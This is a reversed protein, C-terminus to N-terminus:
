LLEKIKGIDGGLMLIFQKILVNTLAKTEFNPFNTENADGGVRYYSMLIVDRKIGDISAILTLFIDEISAMPKFYGNAVYVALYTIARGMLYVEDNVISMKQSFEAYLDPQDAFLVTLEFLIKEIDRPERLVMRILKAAVMEPLLDSEFLDDVNKRFDDYQSEREILAFLIDHFNAYYRYIGGQCMGTEKIVDNMTVHYLPKKMCIRFTADLIDQKKQIIYAENVKPM